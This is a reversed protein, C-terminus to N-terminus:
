SSSELPAAQWREEEPDCPLVDTLGMFSVLDRLDASVNRLCVRCGYRRAALQLRALAEVTVCDPGVGGVDCVAVDPDSAAFLACVRNCLGPLDGRAIPGWVAFAVTRQADATM